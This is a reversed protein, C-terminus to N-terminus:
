KKYVCYNNNDKIIITKIWNHNCTYEIAKAYILKKDLITNTIDLLINSSQNKGSKIRGVNGDIRKTIGITKIEITQEELLPFNNLVLLDASPENQPFDIGRQLKIDGWINNKFWTGIIFDELLVEKLKANEETSYKGDKSYTGKSIEIAGESPKADIMWLKTVDKLEEKNNTRTM